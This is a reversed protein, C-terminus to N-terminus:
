KTWKESRELQVATSAPNRVKVWFPSPGSRYTGSPALSALM